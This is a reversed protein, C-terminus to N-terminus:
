LLESEHKERDSGRACSESSGAEAGHARALQARDQNRNEGVAPWATQNETRSSLGLLEHERQQLETTRWKLKEKTGDAAWPSLEHARQDWLLEQSHAARSVLHRRDSITARKEDIKNELQM